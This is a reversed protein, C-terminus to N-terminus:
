AWLKTKIGEMNERLRTNTSLERTITEIGHIVTTHDRGGLLGGIDELTLGLETKCLYMVLQRPRVIPRDRKPGKLQTTKIGFFNGVTELIEQPAVRKKHEQTVGNGTQTKAGLLSSVLEPNISTRKTAVETALRKLFGEIARTDTLNAAIMQSADNPVSIGMAKSKINVIAIRLEFDPPAVDVTLGGEFRSRLRDELRAIEAPPRDSTLIIQGGERHVANFTHFFEEQTQQKGAIFQVDDVLFLQATRYKQRFQRASKAQIAEVIENTFEEGMCYVIRMSSKEKLIANAVAHMLHTKGVGVGGYLFLPNYATGPSKAVATAAAYAMQNTTSVAFNDFTSQPRLHLRKTVAAMDMTPEEINDSAFLPGMDKESLNKKHPAVIFVISTDKHTHHDLISKLLSYYRTEIITRMLGNEVGVTAVNDVLSVLTTRAFQTHYITRSVSLELEAQVSKWLKTLDM